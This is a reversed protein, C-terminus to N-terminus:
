VLKNNFFVNIFLVDLVVFDFNVDFMVFKLRVMSYGFRFVLMVFVNFIGFYVNIYGYYFLLVYEGLIKFM